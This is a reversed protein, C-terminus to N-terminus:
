LVLNDANIRYTNKGFQLYNLASVPIYNYKLRPKMYYSDDVVFNKDILSLIYFSNVNSGGTEVKTSSGDKFILKVSKKGDLWKNLNVIETFAKHAIGRKYQETALILDLDCGYLVDMFTLKENEEYSHISKIPDAFTDTKFDFILAANNVSLYVLGDVIYSYSINITPKKEKYEDTFLMRKGFFFKGRDNKDTYFETDNIHQDIYENLQKDAETKIKNYLYEAIEIETGEAKQRCIACKIFMIGPKNDATLGYFSFDGNYDHNNLYVTIGNRKEMKYVKEM